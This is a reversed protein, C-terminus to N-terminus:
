PVHVALYGDRYTGALALTGAALGGALKLNSAPTLAENGVAVWAQTGDAADLCTLDAWVVRYKDFGLFHRILEFEVLGNCGGSLIRFEVTAVLEGYDFFVGNGVPIPPEVQALAATPLLTLAAVIAVLIRM